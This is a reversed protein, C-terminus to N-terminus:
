RTSYHLWNSLSRQMSMIMIQHRRHHEHQSQRLQFHWKKSQALALNTQNLWELKQTRPLTFLWALPITSLHRDKPRLGTIILNNHLERIKIDLVINDERLAQNIQKHYASNRFEWLDWAVEWLKTILAITWRKSSRKSNISGYYQEQVQEWDSHLWGEFFNQAGIQDQLDV